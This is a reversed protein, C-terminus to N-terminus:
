ASRVRSIIDFSRGQLAERGRDHILLVRSNPSPAGDWLATPIQIEIDETTGIPRVKLTFSSATAKAIFAEAERLRADMGPLSRKTSALLKAWEVFSEAFALGDPSATFLQANALMTEATTPSGRRADNSGKCDLHVEPFSCVVRNLSDFIANPSGDQRRGFTLGTSHLSM